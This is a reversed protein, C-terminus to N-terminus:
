DNALKVKLQYTHRGNAGKTRTLRGQENALIPLRKAVRNGGATDKLATIIEAQIRQQGDKMLKLIASDAAENRDLQKPAKGAYEFWFRSDDSYFALDFPALDPADRNKNQFITVINTNAKRKVSMQVDCAALIDGSGRMENAGRSAFMGPKRNHHILFVAIGDQALRKLDGMVASMDKASNEDGIHIRTLSDFIVLGVKQDNCYGILSNASAENLKFSNYSSVAIQTDSLAGLRWLRDRTRGPGSEEDVILVNTRKTEFQEFVPGGSAVQIAIDFALWTKYQAPPASIITISADPILRDVIWTPPKIDQKALEEFWVPSVGPSIETKHKAFNDLHNMQSEIDQLEKAAPDCYESEM